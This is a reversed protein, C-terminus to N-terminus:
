AGGLGPATPQEDVVRARLGVVVAGLAIVAAADDRWSAFLTAPLGCVTLATWAALPLLTFAPLRLRLLLYFWLVYTGAALAAQSLVQWGAGRWDMIAGDPRQLVLSVVGLLALYGGACMLVPQRTLWKQAFWWAYVAGIGAALQLLLMPIQVVSISYSDTPIVLLAAGAGIIGVGVTLRPVDKPAARVASLFGLWLPAALSILFAVGWPTAYLRASVPTLGALNLVFWPLALAALCLWPRLGRIRDGRIAGVILLAGGALMLAAATETYTQWRLWLSSLGTVPGALLAYGVFAVLIGLPLKTRM